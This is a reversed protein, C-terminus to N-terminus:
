AATAWHTATGRVSERVVPAAPIDGALRTLQSAWALLYAEREAASVRPTAYAVFTPAIQLGLYELMARRHPYLLQDIPGYIGQPSFREPTGGTTLGILGHRGKFHGTDFRRGDAYAFGYAMVRDFWGKLIAPM